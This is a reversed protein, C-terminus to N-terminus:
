VIIINSYSFNCYLYKFMPLSTFTIAEHPLKFSNWLQIISHVFSYQLVYRSYMETHM